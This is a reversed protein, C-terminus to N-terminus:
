HTRITLAARFGSLSSTQTADTALKGITFGASPAVTLAGM